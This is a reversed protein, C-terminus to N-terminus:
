KTYLVEVLDFFHEAQDSTVVVALDGLSKLEACGLRVEWRTLMAHGEPPLAAVGMRVLASVVLDPELDLLALLPTFATRREAADLSAYAAIAPSLGAETLDILTHSGAEASARTQCLWAVISKALAPASTFNSTGLVRRAHM